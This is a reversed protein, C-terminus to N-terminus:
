IEYLEHIAAFRLNSVGECKSILDDFTMRQFGPYFVILFVNAVMINTM